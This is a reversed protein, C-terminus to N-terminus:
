CGFVGAFAGHNGQGDAKGSNHDELIAFVVVEFVDRYREEELLIRKFIRAVHRPPNRFAGCGLASLVLCQHGRAAAIELIVRVKDATLAEADRDLLLEGDGAPSEVLPPHALAACAVFAYTVAPIPVYGRAESGRFVHVAPTYVAEDAALPYGCSGRTLMEVYNSRRFLNEEQAGAGSMFGGGPHRQNAMNLVLPMSTITGDRVLRACLELCDGYSVRVETSRGDPLKPPAPRRRLSALSLKESKGQAPPVRAADGRVLPDAGTDDGALDSAGLTYERNRSRLVALTHEMVDVRLQRIARRDAREPRTARKFKALWNEASFLSAM